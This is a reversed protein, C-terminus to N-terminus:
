HGSSRKHHVHHKLVELVEDSTLDSTDVLIADPACKLPAVDRESDRHDREQQQRLIEDVTIETGQEALERHRRLARQRPDAQLFFKCEAQPFVVTGQDRGETVIDQGQAIQQQARVMIRRVEPNAAVISTNRSVEPTRIERSLIQGNLELQEGRMTLQVRDAEQAVLESQQLDIGRQLCHWTVARYMAGTDLYAFGLERALGKAATSKGSGAPGDITVIM